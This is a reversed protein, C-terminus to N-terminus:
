PTQWKDTSSASQSKLGSRKPVLSLLPLGLRIMSEDLEPIKRAGGGNRDSNANVLARFLVINNSGSQYAQSTGRLGLERKASVTFGARM